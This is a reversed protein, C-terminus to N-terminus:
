DSFMWYYWGPTSLHQIHVTGRKRGARVVLDEIVRGENSLNYVFAGDADDALISHHPLRFLLFRGERSVQVIGVQALDDPLNAGHLREGDALEHTRVFETMPGEYRKFDVAENCELRADARVFWRTIRNTLFCCLALLAVVRLVRKREATM